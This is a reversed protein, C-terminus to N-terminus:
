ENSMFQLIINKVPGPVEIRYADRKIDDADDAQDIRAKWLALELLTTREKMEYDRNSRVNRRM